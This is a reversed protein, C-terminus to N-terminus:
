GQLGDLAAAAGALIIESNDTCGSYLEVHLINWSGLVSIIARFFSLFFSLSGGYLLSNHGQLVSDTTLYAHQTVEQLGSYCVCHTRGGSTSM